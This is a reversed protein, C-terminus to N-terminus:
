GAATENNEKASPIITNRHADDIITTLRHCLEKIGADNGAVAEFLSLAAQLNALAACGIVNPIGPRIVAVVKATRYNGDGANNVAVVPQPADITAKSKPATRVKSKSVPAKAAPAKAAPAKPAAPAKAVPAAVPKAVKKVAPKKPAPAPTPPPEPDALSPIPGRNKILLEFAFREIDKATCANADLNKEHISKVVYVVQEPFDQSTQDPRCVAIMVKGLEKSLLPDSQLIKHVRSYRTFSASKIKTM